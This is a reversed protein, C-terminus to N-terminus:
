VDIAAIKGSYRGYWCAFVFFRVFLRLYAEKSVRILTIWELWFCFEGVYWKQVRFLRSQSFDPSALVSDVARRFRTGGDHRVAEKQM